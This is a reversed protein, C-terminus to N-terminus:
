RKPEPLKLEPLYKVIRSNGSSPDIKMLTNIRAGAKITSPLQATSVEQQVTKGSQQLEVTATHNETDISKILVDALRCQSECSVPIPYSDCACQPSNGNSSQPQKGCATLFLALIAITKM